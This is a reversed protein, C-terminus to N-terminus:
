AAALINAIERSEGPGRIIFGMLVAQACGQEM